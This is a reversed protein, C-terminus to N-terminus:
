RLRYAADLSPPGDCAVLERELMHLLHAFVSRAAAPLLSEPLGVYMGPLMQAIRDVGHALCTVIQRERTHRHRLYARVFPKPDAILAGHTPLYLSDDRALLHELSALYQGMDGDPPSVISTSWAMVHDGSFLVGTDPLAFCLHNSCHGPTHVCEIRLAGLELVEGHALRQDPTFDLDAGAEVVEGRQYRGLAHPGFGYTRAGTKAALLRAGPSHDAHTHTVLIHTIEEGALAACLLEIHARSAPGPDIVAVRGRGVVYTGTGHLTFPGPNQAVLRRVNPVVDELVGYRFQLERVFPIESVTTGSYWAKVRRTTPEFATTLKDGIAAESL